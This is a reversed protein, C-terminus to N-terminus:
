RGPDIPLIKHVPKIGRISNHRNSLTELQGSNLLRDKSISSALPSILELPLSLSLKGRSLEVCLSALVTVSINLFQEVLATDLHAM